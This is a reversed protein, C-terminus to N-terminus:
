KIILRKCKSLLSRFRRYNDIFFGHQVCNAYKEAIYDFSKKNLEDWFVERNISVATPHELVPQICEDIKCEIFDINEKTRNFFDQGKQSNVLVLSVGKDDNFDSYNNDIGWFDGITIDSPHTISKYKCKYCSPRVCQGSFFLTKFVNSDIEFTKGSKDQLTLTEMHAKWGYKGKNRFDFGICKAKNRKEQWKIYKEYVLPSPVSHCLIDICILKDYEKGLFSKLGAVQCSTGSFLVYRDSNLDEKISLFTNSLRSQVYKSGRMRDRDEKKEARIHVAQLNEDLVCGYVVGNDNIILDSVASFIGGSRSQMRTNNDKHKVAYAVPTDFFM